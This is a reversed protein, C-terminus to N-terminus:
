VFGHSKNSKSVLTRDFSKKNDFKILNITDLFDIVLEFSDILSDERLLERAKLFGDKDKRLWANRILLMLSSLHASFVRQSSMFDSSGQKSVVFLRFSKFSVDLEQLIMLRVLGDAPLSVASEKEFLDSGEKM